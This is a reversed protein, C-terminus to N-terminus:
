RTRRARRCGSGGRSSTGPSRASSRRSFPRNTTALETDIIGQGVTKAVATTVFAGVLNALPPSRSRWGRRAAGADLDVDRGREGHRPLRQHLRLRARRRCSSSSSAELPRLPEQRLDGRARRSRERLRRGGGRAGRPHGELPDRSRTRARASSRPSAERVLRDGEDELDRLENLQRSSDKFGDLRQVAEDLVITARMSSTPRHARAEASAASATRAWTTPPRTSPDCIDDIAAALRYIDDRDFPTVFTRNILNVVEHTLRRGDHELEKIQGILETGDEPFRELLELLSGRSTSPTAVVGAHVARLIRASPTFDPADCPGTDILARGPLLVHRDPRRGAHATAEVSGGAAAVVHKM